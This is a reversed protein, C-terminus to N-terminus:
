SRPSELEEDTIPVRSGVECFKPLILHFPIDLAKYKVNDIITVITSRITDRLVYSWM